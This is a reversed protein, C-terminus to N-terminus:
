VDKAVQIVVAVSHWLVFAFGVAQEVLSGSLAILVSLPRNTPVRHRRGRCDLDHKRQSKQSAQKESDGEQFRSLAMPSPCLYCCADRCEKEDPSDCQIQEPM